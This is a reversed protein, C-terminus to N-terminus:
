DAEIKDPIEKTFLNKLYESSLLEPTIIPEKGPVLLVNVPIASRGLEQLKAEISPNPSTKDAKLAVVGRQKMLRIVEDSYARKKNVQCTACWQATFDIYVPTGKALLTDVTEQSWPEWILASKEPPKALILGSVAFFVSLTMATWRTFSTRHPLNWRGYIWAAVAISSLGFLPGLLNDLGIQGAYVWLLYGTTAFLFFSMAQKFSEMWAGPRPLFEILKPFISLILYPLALGLAMAAFATFFQLAPLAISAGIAVGLFPASCPTAVITALAGSFFSGGLGQKSQLSGGVSTASTGLEFLGFMNLALVFMLLMLALVVWPNQLQYGWGISNAGSGAAARAAYLIGSLIGFSTFVGLAFTVGHLAIKRRDQGAQQVFGMIKLGIVPFVCPMLNLILGGLL